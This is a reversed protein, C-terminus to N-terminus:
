SNDEGLLQCQHLKGLSTLHATGGYGLAERHFFITSGKPDGLPAPDPQQHSLHNWNKQSQFLCMIISAGQQWKDGALCGACHSQRQQPLLTVPHYLSPSAACSPLPFGLPQWTQPCGSPLAPETRRQHQRHARHWRPTLQSQYRWDTVHETTTPEHALM